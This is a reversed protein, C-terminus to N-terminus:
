RSAHADELLKAREEVITRALQTKLDTVRPERDDRGLRVGDRRELRCGAGESFHLPWEECSVVGRLMPDIAFCGDDCLLACAQHYAMPEDRVSVVCTTTTNVFLSVPKCSSPRDARELAGVCTLYARAQAGDRYVPALRQSEDAAVKAVSAAAENSAGRRASLFGLGAAITFLSVVIAAKLM